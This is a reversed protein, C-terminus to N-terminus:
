AEALLKIIMTATPMLQNEEGTVWVIPVASIKRSSIRRSRTCSEGPLVPAFVGAQDVVPRSGCITWLRVITGRPSSMIITSDKIRM